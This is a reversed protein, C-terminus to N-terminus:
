LICFIGFYVLIYVDKKAAVLDLPQIILYHIQFPLYQVADNM